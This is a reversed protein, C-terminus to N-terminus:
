NLVNNANFNNTEMSSFSLLDISAHLLFGYVIEFPRIKTIFHLSHLLYEEWMKLNNQLELCMTSLTGNGIDTQSHCTTSFFCDLGSSLGYVDGLTSFFITDHDSIITNSVGHLRIIEHFFM